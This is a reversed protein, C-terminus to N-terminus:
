CRYVDVPNSRNLRENQITSSAGLWLKPLLELARGTSLRREGLWGIACQLLLMSHQGSKEADTRLLIRSTCATLIDSSSTKPGSTSSVDEPTPKQHPWGKPKAKSNKTSSTRRKPAPMATEFSALRADYTGMTKSAMDESQM